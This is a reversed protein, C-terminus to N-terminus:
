DRKGPNSSRTSTRRAKATKDVSMVALRRRALLLEELIQEAVEKQWEKEQATEVLRQPQAMSIQVPYDVGDSTRPEAYLTFKTTGGRISATKHKNRARGM